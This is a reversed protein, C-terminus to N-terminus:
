PTSLSALKDTIEIPRDRNLTLTREWTSTSANPRSQVLTGLGPVEVSVSPEDTQQMTGDKEVFGGVIPPDPCGASKPLQTGIAAARGGPVSEVDTIAWYTEPDPWPVTRLKRDVPRIRFVTSPSSCAGASVSFTLLLDDAPSAPADAYM